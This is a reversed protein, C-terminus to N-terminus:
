EEMRIVCKGDVMEIILQKRERLWLLLDEGLLDARWGNAISEDFYSPEAKMLKFNTRSLVLTPDVQNNQCIYEVISYLMELMTNEMPDPSEKQDPISKLIARDEESIKRNFLENFTNWHRSITNTPLRRDKLLANKGSNMNKVIPTILKKPLIMERSYNKREAENKRWDYLRIMFMQEQTKLNSIASNRFADRHPNIYYYEATAIKDCEEQSWSERNMEKLKATLSKWLGRLYIVDNLAYSIQKQSFPRAEWDSVTYGKPVFVGLEKDVLKQFSTPYKYGVFGAALQTDFVNVPIIGFQHYFIRYDNEGAHTLKLIKPDTFLDLIGEFSKLKITDLLYYGNETALQVLCLLTHFRREGIFETDFGMWEINQNENLFAQVGEKTEILTYNLKEQSM